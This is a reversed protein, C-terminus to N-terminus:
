RYILTSMAGSDLIANAVELIEIATVQGIKECVLDFSDVKDYFLFTKGITLMLDEHNEAAIALQGVMQKQARLLQLTGLKKERLMRFEKHVMRLAREFNESDTGFYVSFLGADSFSNYSSEINYAMGNRERLALNLRSNMGQGGLLNNLLVM